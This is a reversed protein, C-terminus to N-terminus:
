DLYGLRRLREIVKAKEEETLDHKSRLGWDIRDWIREHFYYLMVQILHFLATVATTIRWSQTFFWTIAGLIIVGLIRWTISKMFSRSKSEMSTGRSTSLKTTAIIAKSLSNM